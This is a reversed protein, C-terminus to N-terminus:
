LFAFSPDRKEQMTLFWYQKSFSYILDEWLWKLRIRINLFHGFLSPKIILWILLPLFFLSFLALKFEFPTAQSLKTFLGLHYEICMDKGAPVSCDVGEVVSVACIEGGRTSHDMAFFNLIGPSLVALVLIAFVARIIFNYNFGKM